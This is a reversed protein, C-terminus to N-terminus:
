KKFEALIVEPVHKNSILSCLTFRGERQLSRSQQSLQDSAVGWPFLLDQHLALVAWYNCFCKWIILRIKLVFGFCLGISGVTFLTLEVGTMVFMLIVPKDGCPMHVHLCRNWQWWYWVGNHIYHFNVACLMYPQDRMVELNQLSFTSKLLASSGEESSSSM